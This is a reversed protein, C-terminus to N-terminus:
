IPPLGKEKRLVNEADRPSVGYQEGVAILADLEGQDLEVPVLQESDPGTIAPSPKEAQLPFAGIAKSRLFANTLHRIMRNNEHREIDLSAEASTARQEARALQRLLRRYEGKGIWM